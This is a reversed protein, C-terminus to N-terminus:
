RPATALSRCVPPRAPSSGTRRAPGTGGVTVDTGGGALVGVTNPLLTTGTADTGILNDPIVVGQTSAFPPALVRIGAPAGRTHSIAAIVNGAGPETESITSSGHASFRSRPASAATRRGSPV